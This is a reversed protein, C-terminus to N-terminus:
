RCIPSRSWGMLKKLEYIQQEILINATESSSNLSLSLSLSFSPPSALCLQSAWKLGNVKMICVWIAFLHGKGWKPVGNCRRRQTCKGKLPIAILFLLVFREISSTGNTESIMWKLLTASLACLALLLILLSPPPLLLPLVRMKQYNLTLRQGCNAVAIWYFWWCPALANLRSEILTDFPLVARVTTTGKGGESERERRDMQPKTTKSLTWDCLAWCTTALDTRLVGLCYAKLPPRPRGAKYPWYLISAMGAGAWCLCIHNHIQVLEFDISHTM